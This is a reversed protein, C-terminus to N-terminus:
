IDKSEHSVGELADRIIQEARDMICFGHHGRIYRKGMRIEWKIKELAGSLQDRKNRTINELQKVDDFM